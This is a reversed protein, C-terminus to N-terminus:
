QARCRTCPQQSVPQSPPLGIAHPVNDHVVLLVHAVHDAWRVLRSAVRENHAHQTTPHAEHTTAVHATHKITPQQMHAPKGLVENPVVRVLDLHLENM